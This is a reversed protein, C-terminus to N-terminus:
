NGAVMGPITRCEENQCDRSAYKTIGTPHREQSGNSDRSPRTSSFWDGVEVQEIQEEGTWHMKVYRNIGGFLLLGM